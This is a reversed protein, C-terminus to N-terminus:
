FLSITKFSDRIEMIMKGLNNSGQGTKLSIGWFTDGWNNGEEIELDHTQLLLTKFEDRNFKQILLKKMVDKRIENWNPVIDVEKALRKIKGSPITYDSCTQKWIESTSKASQYAAEVSHFTRGDLEVVCDVFNSLWSYQGKFERIKDM